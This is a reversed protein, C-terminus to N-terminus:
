SRRHTVRVTKSAGNALNGITYSLRGVFDGAATPTTVSAQGCSAPVHGLFTHVATSHTVPATYPTIDTLALSHGATEFGWVSDLDKAYLDNSLTGDVDGDFYRDLRINFRTAGSTNRVTMSVTVDRESSDVSFVQTLELGNTTTRRITLPLADPVPQIITTAANFGGEVDGADYAVVTLPPPFPPPFTPGNQSCVAYGERFAGIRIHEFGAPSEFRVVNGHDSFCVNMSGLLLTTQCTTSAEGPPTPTQQGPAIAAGALLFLVPVALAWTQLTSRHQM